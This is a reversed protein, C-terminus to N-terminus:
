YRYQIGSYSSIIYLRICVYGGIVLEQKDVRIPFVLGPNGHNIFVIKGIISSSAMVYIYIYIGSFYFM